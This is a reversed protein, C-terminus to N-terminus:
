RVKGHYGWASKSSGMNSSSMLDVLVTCTRGAGAQQGAVV